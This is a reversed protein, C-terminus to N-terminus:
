GDRWGWAETKYALSTSMYTFLVQVEFDFAHKHKWPSGGVSNTGLWRQRKGVTEAACATQGGFRQDKGVQFVSRLPRQSAKRSSERSITPPHIKRYEVVRLASTCSGVNAVSAGCTLFPNHGASVRSSGSCLRGGGECRGLARM